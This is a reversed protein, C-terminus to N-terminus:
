LMNTFTDLINNLKDSQKSWVSYAIDASILMQNQETPIFAYKQVSLDYEYAVVAEKDVVSCFNEVDVYGNYADVIKQIHQEELFSEGNRRTVEKVANIFM